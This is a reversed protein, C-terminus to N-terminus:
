VKLGNMDLEICMERDELTIINLYACEKSNKLKESLAIRQVAFSVDTIISKAEERFDIEQYGCMAMNLVWQDRYLDTHIGCQIPSPVVKVNLIAVEMSMKTHGDLPPPTPPPHHLYNGGPGYSTQLLERRRIYLIPKNVDIYLCQFKFHRFPATGSARM